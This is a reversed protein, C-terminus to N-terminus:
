GGRLLVGHAYEAKDVAGGALVRLNDLGALGPQGVRLLDVRLLHQAQWGGSVRMASRRIPTRSRSASKLMVAVRAASCAEALASGGCVSVARAPSATARRACARTGRARQMQIAQPGPLLPPSPKTAARNSCWAALAAPAPRSTTTVKNAPAVVGGSAAYASASACDAPTRNLTSGGLFQSRPMSAMSPIPTVRTGSLGSASQSRRSWWDFAGQRHTSTGLPSSASVPWNWECVPSHVAPCGGPGRWVSDNSLRLGPRNVAWPRSRAPATQNSSRCHARGVSTATEAQSAPRPSEGPACTTRICALWLPLRESTTTSPPWSM